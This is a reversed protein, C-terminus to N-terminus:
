LKLQELHEILRSGLLRHERWGAKLMRGYLQRETWHNVAHRMQVTHGDITVQGHSIMSLAAKKSMHLDRQMILVINVKRDPRYRYMTM